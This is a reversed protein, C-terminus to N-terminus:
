PVLQISLIKLNTFILAKKTKQIFYKNKKNIIEFINVSIFIFLTLEM